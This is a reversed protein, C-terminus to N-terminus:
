THFRNTIWSLYYITSSFTLLTICVHYRRLVLPSANFRRTQLTKLGMFKPSFIAQTYWTSILSFFMRLILFGTNEFTFRIFISILLSMFAFLWVTNPNCFYYSLGADALLTIGIEDSICVMFGTYYWSTQWM